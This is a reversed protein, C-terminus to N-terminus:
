SVVIRVQDATTFRGGPVTRVDGDVNFDGPGEVTVTTGRAHVVGDQETLGGVRMGHARRLLQRRPGAVLVAVDLAGPRAVDLKSGGGFAGTGAVIVQWARGSFVPEGDAAVRVQLPQARVGAHVAGAAYALPGLVRKLPVASRTAHVSLGASATNLFPVVGADAIDVTRLGEGRAALDLAAELDDLPLELARALDNATGVPLVALPVDLQAALAAAPGLSGDGGAVVVRDVGAPPADRLDDLDDIPHADVDAGRTRLGAAIADPDDVGGSGANVILLIRM